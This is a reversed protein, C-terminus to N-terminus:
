HIDFGSYGSEAIELCRTRYAGAGGAYALLRRPKGAVNSGVYWSDTKSMLVSDAVLDHHEVWEREIQATPEIVHGGNELVHEICDAIWENQFQLCIPMNCLAASPALPAGTMFLNPFGNMQLGFATSVGKQWHDRLSLGDRGRFDIRAFAGTGADFGTAMIIADLEHVTGDALQLGTPTVAAIPNSKVPVAHVNPQLFAELFGNELPVRRTGFGYDAPVLIESLRDDNLRARMKARIFASIEANVEEDVFLEAFSALWFKLSGDAYCAELIELRREPSLDRWAYEPAFDFGGFSIPLRDQLARFNSKYAEIDVASYRVNQMPLAYHPTRVFVTLEGAVPALAQVVQIGTAGTGIVGVRKGALDAGTAPWRATHFIQGKFLQQGPFQDTLPASLMGCCAIVFRTRLTTGRSTQVTWRLISEDWVASTVATDLDIDQRLVLSDAVYNLWAEVETQTAFRESWSWNRYLEDSFLYQYSPSESDLRAGPYRNWFWTGGIGSGAECIRATLGKERMLHLQYLGSVGAGIILVDLEVVAGAPTKEIIKNSM